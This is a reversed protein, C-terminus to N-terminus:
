LLLGPFQRRVLGITDRGLVVAVYLSLLIDTEATRSSLSTEGSFSSLDLTSYGAAEATRVLLLPGM